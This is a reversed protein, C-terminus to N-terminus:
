QAMMNTSGDSTTVRVWVLKIMVAMSALINRLSFSVMAWKMPMKNVAAPTMKMVCGANMNAVLREGGGAGRLAVRIVVTVQM